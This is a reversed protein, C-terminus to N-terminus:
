RRSCHELDEPGFSQGFRLDLLGSVVLV